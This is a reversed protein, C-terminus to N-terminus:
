NTTSLYFGVQKRLFKGQNQAIKSYYEFNDESQENGYTGGDGQRVFSSHSWHSTAAEEKTTCPKLCTPTENPIRFSNINTTKRAVKTSIGKNQGLNLAQNMTQSYRTSQTEKIKKNLHIRNNYNVHDDSPLSM